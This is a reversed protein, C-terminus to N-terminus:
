KKSSIAIGHKSRQVKGEAELSRLAEVVRENRVQLRSHLTEITLPGPANSLLDLIRSALGDQPPKETPIGNPSTIRLHTGPSDSQVLDLAVPGFSPASRHEASVTRQGQTSLLKSKGRPLLIAHTPTSIERFEGAPCTLFLTKGYDPAGIPM